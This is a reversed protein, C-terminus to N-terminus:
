APKGETARRHRRCEPHNETPSRERGSAMVQCEDMLCSRGYDMGTAVAPTQSPGSKTDQANATTATLALAFAVALRSM